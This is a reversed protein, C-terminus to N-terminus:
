AKDDPTDPGSTGNKKRRGILGGNQWYEQVGKVVSVVGMGLIFWDFISDDLTMFFLAALLLRL